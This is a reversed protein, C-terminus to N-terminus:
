TMRQLDGKAIHSLEHELIEEVTHYPNERVLIVYEVNSSDDSMYVCADTGKASLMRGWEEMERREDGRCKTMKVFDDFDEDELQFARVKPFPEKALRKWISLLRQRPLEKTKVRRGDVMIM